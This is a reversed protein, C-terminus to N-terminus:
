NAPPRGEYGTAADWIQGRGNVAGAVIRKGDPHWKVCEVSKGVNLSLALHGTEPDWIKVTGDNSSTALRHGDPSWSLDTVSLAHGTLRVLAKKSMAQWVYASNGSRGAILTSDPSWRYAKMPESHIRTSLRALGTAADLVTIGGGGDSVAIWRGDPSWDLSEVSSQESSEIRLSRQQSWDETALVEVIGLNRAIALWKSDPSWCVSGVFGEAVPLQTLESGTRTEFVHIRQDRVAAAWDASPNWRVSYVRGERLLGTRPRVEGSGPNWIKITPVGSIALVSEKNAAWTIFAVRSDFLNITSPKRSDYRWLRIAGDACGAALWNSKQDWSACRVEVDGTRFLSSARGAVTDWVRVTGDSSASALWHDDSSWGIRMASGVHADFNHLMRGSAINWIRIAGNTGASAIATGTSNWCISNVAMHRGLSKLAVGGSENVEWLHIADGPHCTTAVFKGNPSWVGGRVSHSEHMLPEGLQGGSMADWIRATGDNGSSVLYRGDPSWNVTGIHGSHAKIERTKTWTEVNWVRVIGDDCSTALHKGDPSWAATWVRNPHSLRRQPTGDNASWIVVSGDMSASAILTQDPSWQVSWVHDEHGKLIQEEGRILSRLYFWEWGRLDLSEDSAPIWDTTMQELKGFGVPEGAMAGAVNMQSYYFNRRLAEGTDEAAQRHGEAIRQLRKSNIAMITTVIAISALLAVVAAIAAALSKNRRCWRFFHEAVSVRRALIPEDAIFRRLDNALECASSYRSAPERDCAKLVITELDHPVRANLSRLSPPASTRVLDMLTMRDTAQYAPRLTLLEYLTLGLGYIDAREDCQQNFHEPAIYRLTGVFDGSLTLGEDDDMKALGFDSLWVVGQDDLLINSPKVDRHIIDRHHAYALADATQAGINAVWRFARERLSESISPDSLKALQSRGSESASARKREDHDPALTRLSEADAILSSLSQGAILQMALFSHGNDEGVEFLPVINTHHLKAIARAERNFRGLARKDGSIRKPLVKLAVRRGLAQHFAEYVIGMGGRGLERVIRYDQVQEIEGEDELMRGRSDAKGAELMELPRLFDQLETAIEPYRLCYEAIKPSEGSHMRTVFEDAIEDILDEVSSDDKM